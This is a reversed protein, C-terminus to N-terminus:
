RRIGYRAILRHLSARSICLLEAARGPKGSVLDLVKKIALAEAEERVQRLSLNNYKKSIENNCLGMSEANLYDGECCFLGTMIKEILEDVNGPWDYGSIADEADSSFGLVRKNQERSLKYLYYKALIIKDQGRDRLPPIDIWNKKLLTLFEPAISRSGDVEDLSLGCCFVFECGSVKMLLFNCINSQEYDSLAVVDNICLCAEGSTSDQHTASDLNSLYNTLEVSSADLVIFELGNLKAWREALLRKGAGGEGSLTIPGSQYRYLKRLAKQFSEHRGIVEGKQFSFSLKNKLKSMGYARGMTIFLKDESVPATHYDYCYTAVFLQWEKKSLQEKSLIAIWSVGKYCTLWREIEADPQESSSCDIIGIASDKSNLYLGAAELNSYRILSWHEYHNSLVRLGSSNSLQLVLIERELDM